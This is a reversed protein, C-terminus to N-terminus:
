GARAEKITKWIVEPTAPMAVHTVGYVSLADVLANAVAPMAGVCGAEGAGKTGLPNTKTPVPNSEMHYAPTTRARPMAYDMFSGTLLQGQADFRVDEMLIQGIGQAIGGDIQGHLLLPNLVTGVDDVVNYGVIETEGTEEDIEVECIHCGNPFNQTDTSFKATSTLGVEMDKPLKTPDAAARAIETITLTENTKASSFIGEAFNIDSPELKLLHAAIQTAKTVIKESALFFASGGMTASRSGGTGEGFFAQDTDGALYYVDNPDIGLRDCVLQKFVTEHGQGQSHSGAVLTVAGTRDFRVEAAEFGGSAAREITFSLGIGRLKGRKRAAARRKEFNKADAMKLAINMSKEFEGCDYTFAV